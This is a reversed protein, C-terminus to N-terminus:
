VYKSAAKKVPAKKAPSKKAVVKKPATKKVTKKTPSKTVAKKPATKKVTKKAPSKTVAKKPATKKTPSKAAAKKAAIKKADTKKTPATKKPATKKVILYNDPHYGSIWSGVKAIALGDNDEFKKRLLDAFLIDWASTYVNPELHKSRIKAIEVHATVGYHDRNPSSVMFTSVFDKLDSFRVGKKAVDAFMKDLDGRLGQIFKRIPAKKKEDEKMADEDMTMVKKAAKKVLAKKAAAPKAVVKKTGTKSAPAKDVPTKAPHDKEYQKRSVMTAGISEFFDMVKTSSAPFIWGM